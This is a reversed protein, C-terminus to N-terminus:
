SPRRRRRQALTSHCSRHGAAPWASVLHPVGQRLDDSILDRPKRLNAVVRGRVVEPEAGLHHLLEVAMNTKPDLLGLLVHEVAIHRDGHPEARECPANSHLEFARAEEQASVVVQRAPRTVWEFM